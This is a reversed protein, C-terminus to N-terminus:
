GQSGDAPASESRTLLWKFLASDDCSALGAASAQAFVNRALRGIVLDIGAQDAAELALRTDKELLTMHARPALDGALARRLRDQGIWSQGSSREIVDLTRSPDLGMRQALALSEAAAVLNVGALLNNVLKTRAGDGIRQSIRFVNGSLARILCAHQDFVSDACALMLSMSGDQARAPGGSMPADITDIGQKALRDALRETDHPGITPCLMVVGGGSMVEAVGGPGFLVAETQAADVVCVVVAAVDIAAQAPLACATAGLAQLAQMREPVLDCVKVWWGQRLLNQAMAGGMNGVGILAVQGNSESEGPCVNLGGQGPVQGATM